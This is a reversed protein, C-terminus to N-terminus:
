CQSQPALAHSGFRKFVRIVFDAFKFSNKLSVENSCADSKAVTKFSDGNPLVIPIIRIVRNLEREVKLRKEKEIHYSRRCKRKVQVRHVGGEFQLQMDHRFDSKLIAQM